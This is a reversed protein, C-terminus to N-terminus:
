HCLPKYICQECKAKNELIPLAEAQAYKVKEVLAEFEETDKASPLAIPHRKNDSLSHLYLAKVPYGMETLCFYHAYIQYRYGDYVFKIKNKREILAQEESDYIDIKGAIRYKESYVPMGQLYRKATSYAGGEIAEHKIKGVMQPTRHYLSQRFGIYISHLYISRPCFTYDNLHTIPIYSEM